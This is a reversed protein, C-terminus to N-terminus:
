SNRGNTLDTPLKNNGQERNQAREAWEAARKYWYDEMELDGVTKCFIAADRADRFATGEVEELWQKVARELERLSNEITHFSQETKTNEMLRERSDELLRRNKYHLYIQTASTLTVIGGVVIGVPYDELSSYIGLGFGAGGVSYSAALFPYRKVWRGTRRLYEVIM